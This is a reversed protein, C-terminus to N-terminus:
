DAEEKKIFIIQSIRGGEKLDVNWLSFSTLIVSINSRYDFDIVGVGLFLLKLSLGPRPYIRCTYKKSFQFSLDFKVTKTIGSGLSVNRSSYVNYCASGPTAKTPVRALSSFRKFKSKMNKM